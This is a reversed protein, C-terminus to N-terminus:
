GKPRPSAATTIRPPLRPLQRHRGDRAHDPRDDPARALTRPAGRAISAPRGRVPPPPGGAGAAPARRESSRRPPSLASRMLWTTGGRGVGVPAAGVARMRARHRAYASTVSFSLWPSAAQNTPPRPNAMIASWWWSSRTAAQSAAGAPTWSISTSLAGSRNKPRRVDPDPAPQTDPQIHRHVIRLEGSETIWACAVVTAARRREIGAAGPRGHWSRQAHRM